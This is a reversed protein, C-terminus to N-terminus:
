VTCRASPKAGVAIDLSKAAIEEDLKLVRAIM